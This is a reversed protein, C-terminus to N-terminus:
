QAGNAIAQFKLFLDKETHSSEISKNFFQNGPGCVNEERPM